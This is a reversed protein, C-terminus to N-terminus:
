EQDTNRITFVVASSSLPKGVETAGVDDREAIVSTAIFLQKLPLKIPFPHFCTQFHAPTSKQFESPEPPSTDIPSSRPEHRPRSYSSAPAEPRLVRHMHQRLLIKFPCQVILRTTLYHAGLATTAMNHHKMVPNGVRYLTSVLTITWFQCGELMPM